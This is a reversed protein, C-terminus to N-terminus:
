GFIREIYSVIGVRTEIIKCNIRKRELITKELKPSKEDGKRRYIRIFGCVV